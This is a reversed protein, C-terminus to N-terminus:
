FCVDNYIRWRRRVSPESPMVVRFSGADTLGTIQEASTVRSPASSPARDRETRGPQVPVSQVISGWRHDHSIRFQLQYPRRSLKLRAPSGDAQSDNSRRLNGSFTTPNPYGVNKELGTM